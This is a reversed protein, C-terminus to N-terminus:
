IRFDFLNLSIPTIHQAKLYMQKKGHSISPIKINSKQHVPQCNDPFQQSHHGNDLHVKM